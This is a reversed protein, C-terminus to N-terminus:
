AQEKYNEPNAAFAAQQDEWSVLPMTRAARVERHTRIAALEGRLMSVSEELEALRSDRMKFAALHDCDKIGLWARLRERMTSNICVSEANDLVLGL